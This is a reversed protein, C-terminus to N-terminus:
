EIRGWSWSEVANQYVSCDGTGKAYIPSNSAQAALAVSMIAKGQLTNVNFALHHTHTSCDPLSGEAVLPKDFRVYGNGSADARVAVVLFSDVVGVALVPVSSILLIFLVAVNLIKM